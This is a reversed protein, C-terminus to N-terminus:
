LGQMLRVINRETLSLDGGFADQFESLRQSASAPRPDRRQSTTQLFQSYAESRSEIFYFTMAWSMSYADLPRSAFPEDSAVLSAMLGSLRERRLMMRFWELRERNLRSQLTGGGDRVGDAEFMMALGEILWKPTNGLRSHVGMNFAVQHTAEHIVTAELTAQLSSALVAAGSEGPSSGSVRGGLLEPREGGGALRGFGILGEAPGPKFLAMADSEHVHVRNSTRLYYGRLQPAYVIGDRRCQAAFEAASRHVIAVLPFEPSTVRIGRTSLFRYFSRSVSDFVEALDEVTEARGCVLYRGRAAIHFGEPLERRLQDRMDRLSYPRFQDATRQVRTLDDVRLPVHTGDQLCIWCDNGEMSLLKGTYSADGVEMRMLSPPAAAAPGAAAIMWCTAVLVLYRGPYRCTRRPCATADPCGRRRSQGTEVPCKGVFGVGNVQKEARFCGPLSGSAM